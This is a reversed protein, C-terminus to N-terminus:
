LLQDARGNVYGLSRATGVPRRVTWQLCYWFFRLFQSSTKICFCVVKGQLRRANSGSHMQPWAASSDDAFGSQGRCPIM